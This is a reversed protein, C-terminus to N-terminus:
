KFTARHIKTWSEFFHKKKSLIEKFKQNEFIKRFILNYIKPLITKPETTGM